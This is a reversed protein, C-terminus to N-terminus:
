APVAKDTDQAAKEADLCAPCPISRQHADAMQGIGGCVTCGKVGPPFHTKPKIGGGPGAAPQKTTRYQEVMKVVKSPNTPYSYNQAKVWGYAARLEDITPYSGNGFAIRLEGIIQNITQATSKGIGTEPKLDLSYQGIIQQEDTMESLTKVTHQEHSLKDPFVCREVISRDRKEAAIWIKKDTFRLVTAKVSTTYAYGGRHEYLWYVPDGVTFGFKTEADPTAGNPTSALTKSDLELDNSDLETSGQRIDVGTTCGDSTDGQLVDTNETDVHSDAENNKPAYLMDFEVNDITITGSPRFYQAKDFNRQQALKQPELKRWQPRTYDYVPELAGCEVLWQRAKHCEKPSWGTNEALGRVSPWAVNETNARAIYVWYVPLAAPYKRFLHLGKHSDGHITRSM